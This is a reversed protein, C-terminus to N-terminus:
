RAKDGAAPGQTPPSQAPEAGEDGEEEAQGEGGGSESDIVALCEALYDELDEAPVEEEVAMRRCEAASDAQCPLPAVSGLLLAIPVLRLALKM